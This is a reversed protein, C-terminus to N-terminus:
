YGVCNPLKPRNKLFSEKAYVTWATLLTVPIALLGYLLLSKPKIHIGGESYLGLGSVYAYYIDVPLHVPHNHYCFTEDSPM